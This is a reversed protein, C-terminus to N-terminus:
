VFFLTLYLYSFLGLSVLWLSGTLFVAGAVNKPEWTPRENNKFGTKFRLDEKPTRYGGGLFVEIVLAIAGVVVLVAAVLGVLLLQMAKWGGATKILHKKEVWGTIESNTVSELLVWDEYSQSYMFKNKENKIDLDHLVSSTTTPEAHLQISGSSWIQVTKKPQTTITITESTESPPVHVYEFYLGICVLIVFISKALTFIRQKLKSNSVTQKTDETQPEVVQGTNVLKGRFIQIGDIIWWLLGIGTPLLILMFIATKFKKLYFRHGGFIGHIVPWDHM